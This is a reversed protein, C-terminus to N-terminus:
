DNCYKIRFHNGQSDLVDPPFLDAEYSDGYPFNADIFRILYFLRNDTRFDVTLDEKKIYYDRSSILYTNLKVLSDLATELNEGIKSQYVISECKSRKGNILIHYEDKSCASFNVAMILLITTLFVHKM